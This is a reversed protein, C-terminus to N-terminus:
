LTQSRQKLQWDIIKSIVWIAVGAIIGGVLYALIDLPDFTSGFVLWMIMSRRAWIAPLGTLQFFEVALTWILSFLPPKWWSMTPFLFWIASAFAMVYCVDGIPRYTNPPLFMM